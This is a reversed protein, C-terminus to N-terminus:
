LIKEFYFRRIGGGITKNTAHTAVDERVLRYGANRYFALAAPQLESTSLELRAAGSVRCHAEASRLLRGAIGRRRWAPDVYMRRLEMAAAGRGELGYMGVITGDAEAVQFVGDHEAYYDPIRAMEDAMSQEIYREFDLALGPPALTRNVTMFLDRVARADDDRYPRMTLRNMAPETTM